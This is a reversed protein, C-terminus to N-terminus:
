YYGAVKRRKFERVPDQEDHPLRVFGGQRIRMLALTVADVYDDYDSQPFEAVQNIVEEAWRTQPAWVMGTAFMDSVSNLRAIKDQGKSPTYEGVVLGMQRLEYILPAGSAKKEVILTMPVGFAEWEKFKDFAVKKLEPFEMREKIADLLIVNARGTTSDDPAAEPYWVGWTTCASYDARSSKEFATDWSQVIFDPRPPREEVWERWWERKVIAGEESTPNQMYQANWQFAPMSAKTRLLTELPWQEPWLSFQTITPSGEEDQEEKELIAPFEVVEYQDAGENMAMDKILRGTIDNTAWRTNVIAIRGGPMLRTRAGTTFWEYVKDLSELNGNVIDQENHLDDCNHTMLGGAYFTNGNPISFNYFRPDRPVVRRIERPARVGLLLGCVRSSFVAEIGGMIVSQRGGYAKHCRSFFQVAARKVWGFQSLHCPAAGLENERGKFCGRLDDGDRVGSAKHALAQARDGAGVSGTDSDKRFCDAQHQELSQQGTHRGHDLPLKGSHLGEASRNPGVHAEIVAPAGYGGFFERVAGVARLLTDRAWRVVQLEGNEPQQVAAADHGMHQLGSLLVRRAFNKAQGYWVEMYSLLSMTDLLNYTTLEGAVVWGKDFTWVPHDLSLEVGDVVVSAEHFSKFRGRVQQFGAHGYVYDGVQVERARLAGRLTRVEVDGGVCLLLDAGRGAIAGGVGVAFYEGGHNTNWRGASKSDASLSIDPFLERYKDSGVLNRVKRGFDVALDATHSVMMIKKDPYNAIFWAPYYYSVLHSKGMRPAMNVCIRDKEGRAIAELLAALRKHHVGIKYTPEITTVFDLLGLKAKKQITRQELEELLKLIEEKQTRPLAHILAPNKKLHELVAIM